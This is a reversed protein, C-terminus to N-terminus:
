FMKKIDSDWGQPIGTERQPSGGRGGAERRVGHRRGAGDGAERGAPGARVAAGGAAVFDPVGLGEPHADGAGM